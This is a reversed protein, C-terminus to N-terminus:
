DEVDTVNNDAQWKAYAEGLTKWIEKNAAERQCTTTATQKIDNEWRLKQRGKRRKGDRPYWVTFNKTLKEKGNRIMHGAWKWKLKKVTHAVDTVRTKSRINTLKIKNRLKINLISREM